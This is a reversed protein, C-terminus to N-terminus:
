KMKVKEWLGNDRFNAPTVGFQERFCKIFYSLNNFGTLYCIEKVTNNRQSLLSYAEQLKLLRMFEVPSYGTLAKLRRYLQTTSINLEGALKNVNFDPDTLNDGLTKKVLQVFEEDRSNTNNEVEVMFNQSKYKERILERNKILRNTQSLLLNIDFPKTIYADAGLEYGEIIQESANKATLLIIPVHCTYSNEKMKECLGFGDLQPMIIDSIVIAPPNKQIIEWAELGNSARLCYYKRSLISALFDGLEENDEVILVQQKEDSSNLDSTHDEMIFSNVLVSESGNVGHPDAENFEVDSIALCVHFAVGKGPVSEVELTGKHMEILSKSFSLGIGAGEANEDIKYFRDFIKSREEEDIENGEN